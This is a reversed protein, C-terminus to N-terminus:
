RLRVSMSAQQLPKVRSNIWHTVISSNAEAEFRLDGEGARADALKGDETM